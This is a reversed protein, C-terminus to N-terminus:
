DFLVSAVVFLGHHVVIGWLLATAIPGPPRAVGGGSLVVAVAPLVFFALVLYAHAVREPLRDLMGVEDNSQVRRSEGHRSMVGASGQQGLARRFSFSCVPGAM